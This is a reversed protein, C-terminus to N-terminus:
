TSQKNGSVSVGIAGGLSALVLFIVFFIVVLVTIFTALAGPSMLSRMMEQARPDPSQAASQEIAKQMADRVSDALHFFVLRLAQPISYFFFGLMGSVVGLRMGMGPTLGAEPRRRRYFRVALGGAALICTWSALLVLLGIAAQGLHFVLGIGAVIAPVFFIALALLLGALASARIGQAWDITGPPRRVPIMPQREPQLEDPLALSAAPIVAPEATTTTVRIQPAGCHPCFATGDEV